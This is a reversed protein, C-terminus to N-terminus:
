RGLLCLTRHGEAQVDLLLQPLLLQLLPELLSGHHPPPHRLHVCAHVRVHVAALADRGDTTLRRGGNADGHSGAAHDIGSAFRARRGVLSDQLSNLLYAIIKGYNLILRGSKIHLKSIYNSGKM